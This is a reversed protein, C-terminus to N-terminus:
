WVGLYLRRSKLIVILYDSNTNQTNLRINSYIRIKYIVVHDKNSRTHDERSGGAVFVLSFLTLVTSLSSQHSVIRVDTRGDCLKHLSRPSVCGVLQIRRENRILYEEKLVRKCRIRHSFLLCPPFARSTRNQGCMQGVVVCSTCPDHHCVRLNYEVSVVLRFNWIM